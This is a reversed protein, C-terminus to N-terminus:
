ATRKALNKYKGLIPAVKMLVRRIYAYLRASGFLRLIPLVELDHKLRYSTINFHKYGETAYGLWYCAAKFCNVENRLPELRENDIMDFLEGETSPEYVVGMSSYTCKNLAIVAKGWYSSEIGMTSNFIIVKESNDMLSYSSEPSTPPIVTVNPFKLDYLMTHSKWPVNSLNPHIRLYFHIDDNDKYHNFIAKLAEYQNPYLVSDDWEKSVAFFEDESSNFISINRKSKDFDKPLLGKEQDKTYIKDGSYIANRRNEYFAKGIEYGKEGANKWALEIKEGLAKYSHPIDNSFNNKRVEGSPLTYQETIFYDINRAKAIGLLPKLNSFRGNHFILIDPTIKDVFREIALTQRVENRMLNNIYDIFLENFSPMVNRTYTVFTSFAGYGIDVGHFTLKKLSKVDSYDFTMDSAMRVIDKTIYDSIKAVHVNNYQKQLGRVLKKMTFTCLYCTAKDCTPCVNCGRVSSDCLLFFVECGDNLRNIAEELAMYDNNSVFVVARKM